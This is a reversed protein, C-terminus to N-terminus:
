EVALKNIDTLSYLIDDDNEYGELYYVEETKYDIAFTQKENKTDIQLNNLEEKDLVKIMGNNEINIKKLDEESIEKGIYDSTDNLKNKENIVKVKAQIQLMTTSLNKLRQDYFNNKIYFGATVTLVIITLIIVILKLNLFGKKKM